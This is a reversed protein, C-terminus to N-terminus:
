TRFALHALAADRLSAPDREGQRARRVIERALIDRLREEDGEVRAGSAEVARWAADFVDALLKVEEPQFAGFFEEQLLQDM